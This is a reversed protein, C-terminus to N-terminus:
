VDKNFKAKFIEYFFLTLVMLTFGYITDEVPITLMRIGLNEADNYWVVPEKLGTGTLLGNVIFFPFLLPVYIIFFRDLWSVKMIFHLFLLFFSASIFTVSTYARDLFVLGTILLFACFLILFIRFVAPRWKIKIFIGLCHYTYVCAFPICFFFLIEEIPLGALKLGTTYYSSFGWVGRATFIADWGIFVSASILNALFFAKFHRDFRLRPHFSFIFPVIVAGFDILLYTLKNMGTQKGAQFIEDAGLAYRLM